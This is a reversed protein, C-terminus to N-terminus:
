TGTSQEWFVTGLVRWELKLSGCGNRSCGSRTFYVSVCLVKVYRFGDRWEATNGASFGLIGQFLVASSKVRVFLFCSLAAHFLYNVCERKQCHQGRTSSRLSYKVAGAFHQITHTLVCSREATKEILASVHLTARWRRANARDNHMVFFIM